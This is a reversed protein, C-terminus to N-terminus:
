VRLVGDWDTFPGYISLYAFGILGAFILWPILDSM